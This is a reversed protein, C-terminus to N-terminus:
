CLKSHGAISKNISNHTDLIGWGIMVILNFNVRKSSFSLPIIFHPVLLNIACFKTQIHFFFNFECGNSFTNGGGGKGNVPM